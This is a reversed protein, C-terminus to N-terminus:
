LAERAGLVEDIAGIEAQVKSLRSELFSVPDEGEPIQLAKVDNEELGATLLVALGGPIGFVGCAIKIFSSDM